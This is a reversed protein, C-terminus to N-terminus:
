PIDKLALAELSAAIEPETAQAGTEIWSQAAAPSIALADSLVAPSLAQGAALRKAMRAAGSKVIAHLRVDGVKSAAPKAPADDAAAADDPVVDVGDTQGVMNLPQLPDDLGDIPDLGEEQRAENRTLWGSLIGTNYYTGRSAADGRMMKSMDFTPELETDVGLLFSVISSAWCKSWPLMTDTWFEISQHEINNNTSRSLDAIKHPPVGFLRAIETVKAARAEIFQSDKNNVTLENYKMGKELVAVKGRNSGGQMQQWSERFTLKAAASAFGGPYEIWGGPKTDNAFFRSAYSQMAMGEAISERAMEIPSMGVYGDSSLGRLHWIEDRTYFIQQGNQDSYVYRYSGNELLQIQMRDPHLPLLEVIEGKGNPTIQCYANGRLALHGMLMMRWEFPSQFRNPAKAFLRYLWHNTQKTRGGGAKPLFLQFDMVAFSQALVRVCAYVETLGMASAPTVRAGTMAVRGIPDFWFSGFVSRDAGGAKIRSLWM